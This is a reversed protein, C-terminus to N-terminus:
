VMARRLHRALMSCRRAQQGRRVGARLAAESGVIVCLERARSIATYVWNRQVILGGFCRHMPIVCVRTESGQFKHCTLAYALALDHKGAPIKVLREPAEFQVLINALGSGGDDWGTVFGLDGNVVGLDYDNRLQIVKDGLRFGRALAPFGDPARNESTEHNLEAQLISNLKECGLDTKERLPTIVQIEHLAGRKDLGFRTPLIHAVLEVVERQIDEPDERDFFLFDGARHTNDLVPMKGDKIRHCNSVILGPDQRKIQSLEVHPIVGSGVLDLLVNGPGVSPLQYSDGVLVLRTGSKLAALLSRFLAIDVMSMEDCILVDTDLPNDECHKFRWHVDGNNIGKDVGLLSHITSAPRSTQEMIRKAAKGTPACLAVNLGAFSALLARITFTKGTGPAGTLLFVKAACAATVAAVQDAQLGDTIPRLEAGPAPAALIGAMFRASDFEARSLRPLYVHGGEPPDPEDGELVVVIRGLGHAEGLQEVVAGQEVGLLIGTTAVLARCPLCTHGGQAAAEELGHIMGAQIRHPSDVAVTHPPPLKRAVQDASHFGVGRIETLQYPDRLIEEPAREGWLELIRRVAPRTINCGGVLHKLELTAAELHYRDQLIQAVCQAKAVTLGSAARSARVPDTRLVEIAKDEGVTDILRGALGPGIGPLECLYSVVDDRATPYSIEYDTFEFQDGYRVHHGWRGVLAYRAHIQPQVMAGKVSVITGGDSLVIHSDAAQEVQLRGILFNDRHFVVQLLSGLISDPEGTRHGTEPGTSTPTSTPTVNAM